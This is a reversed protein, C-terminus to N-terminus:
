FMEQQRVETFDAPNCNLREAIGALVESPENKPLEGRFMRDLGAMSFRLGKDQVHAVVQEKTSGSKIVMKKFKPGSFTAILEDHNTQM